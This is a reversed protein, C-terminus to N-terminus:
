RAEMELALHLIALADATDDEDHAVKFKRRRAEAVMEEKKANGRGCWAKKISGVGVGVLRVRNVDCFVQLQSEFAGYAHAAQTGAHNKVDEYYIAHLEGSANYLNALTARFKLWRQGPGDGKKATFNKTGYTLVGGRSLAWGCNTGLDLALINMTTEPVVAPRDFETVLDTM